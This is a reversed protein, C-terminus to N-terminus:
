ADVDTARGGFIGGPVVRDRGVLDVRGDFIGAAAVRRISELRDPRLLEDATRGLWKANALFRPYDWTNKGHCRRTYCWGLEPDLEAVPGAAVVGKLFAGDEGKRAEPGDEPYRLGNAEVVARRVCVTGPVRIAQFKPRRNHWDVWYLERSDEFLYLQSTLCTGALTPDAVLDAVQIAIREPHYRDDDDWQLWIPGTAMSMSVNRLAGLTQGLGVFYIDIRPGSVAALNVADRVTLRLRARDTGDLADSVIVLERDPWTQRFFDGIADALLRERGPQTVCLCSVKEGM